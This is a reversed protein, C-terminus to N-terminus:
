KATLWHEFEWASKIDQYNGSPVAHLGSNDLQDKSKLLELGQTNNCHDPLYCLHLLVECGLMVIDYDTRHLEVYEVILKPGYKEEFLISNEKNNTILVAICRICKEVTEPVGKHIKMAECVEDFAGYQCCRQQNLLTGFCLSGIASCAVEVMGERDNYRKLFQIVLECCGAVGFVEKEVTEKLTSGINRIAFLSAEAVPGLKNDEEVISVCQNCITVIANAVGEDLMRKSFNESCGLNALCWVSAQVLDINSNYKNVTSILLEIINTHSLIGFNPEACSMNRIAWCAARFVDETGLYESLTKIAGTCCGTSGLIIAVDTDYSLNVAAWLAAEMVSSWELRSHEPTWEKNLFLSLVECAGETVLKNSVDDDASFNRVVRLAMESVATDAQHEKLIDIVCAPGGLEGFKKQRDESDSAMIMMCCCCYYVIDHNTKNATSVSILSELIDDFKEINNTSATDKGLISRRCLHTVAKLAAVTCVDTTDVASLKEKLFGVIEKSNGLTAQKTSSSSSLTAIQELVVLVSDNDLKGSLIRQKIAEIEELDDVLASM